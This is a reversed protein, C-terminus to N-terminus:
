KVPVCSLRREPRNLLERVQGVTDAHLERAAHLMVHACASADSLAEHHHLEVNLMDAVYCLSYSHLRHKWVKRSVALTCEYIMDPCEIGYYALTHRLVGADFPANHAILYPTHVFMAACEEWVEAFLSANRVDEITIGHKAECDPLMYFPTPRVLRSYTQTIKGNQVLVLGIACASTRARNATEFDIALFDMTHEYM